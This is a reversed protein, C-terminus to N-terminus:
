SAVVKVPLGLKKALAIVSTTGRSDALPFALVGSALSLMFQNRLPGAAKGCSSWHAPAVLLPVRHAAAWQAVLQDCGRGNGVVLVLNSQKQLAAWLHAQLLSVNSFHRSGSVVLYFASHAM